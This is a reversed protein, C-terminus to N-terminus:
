RADFNVDFPYKSILYEGTVPNKDEYDTYALCNESYLLAYGRKIGKKRGHERELARIALKLRPDDIRLAEPIRGSANTALRDCVMYDRLLAGDVNSQGSFYSFVLATFDDLSKQNQDTQSLFVGFRCFLEFPNETMRSFLYALTGRFRGRNYLKNLAHETHHLQELDKESLWPTKTVEYPPNQSYECPFQQPNERMPSGHLLKLFGLQLMHPRLAFATNFSDIFSSMDEYPLGAILDIHIHTNGKLRLASINEKLRDM